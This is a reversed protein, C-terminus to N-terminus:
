KSSKAEQAQLYRQSLVIGAVIRDADEPSGLRGDQDREFVVGLKAEVARAMSDVAERQAKLLPHAYLFCRSCCMSWALEGRPALEWRAVDARCNTCGPSLNRPVPRIPTDGILVAKM